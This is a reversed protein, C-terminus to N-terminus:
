TGFRYKLTVGYTPEFGGTLRFGEFPIAGTFAALSPQTADRNRSASTLYDEDFINKGWLVVDWNGSVASLGISANFVTYEDGVVEPDLDPFFFVDDRYSVEGRAYWNMGNGLQDSWTANVNASWPSTYNLRDGSLDQVLNGTVPDATCAVREFQPRLCGANEYEDWRADVYALNGDFLLKDTALWQFDTEFGEIKVKAANQVSNGIGENDQIEVQYDDYTQYFAAINWVLTNDFLRGKLGIEFNDAVESDFPPPCDPVGPDDAGKCVNHGGAKFGRDWGGYISVDDNLWWTLKVTGTLEDWSDEQIPIDDAWTNTPVLPHIFDKFLGAGTPQGKEGVKEVESYRIGFTLDLGERISWINHNFVAWEETDDGINSFGPAQIALGFEFLGLVQNFDVRSLVDTDAYFAGIISSWNDSDYTFRLEQTFSETDALQVFSTFKYPGVATAASDPVVVGDSNVFSSGDKGITNLVYSQDSTVSTMQWHESIDWQLHLSLIETNTNRNTPAAAWQERDSIEPIILQSDAPDTVGVIVREWAPYLDGYQGVFSGSGEYDVEHDEYGLTAEFSDTPQWLLRIRYGTSETEGPDDQPVGDANSANNTMFTDRQNNYVSARVAFQEGLPLNGGLRYEQLGFNGFNGEVYGDMVETDPQKTYLSIAGASVEKGFLTAQPGKLVEVRQIDAMNNFAAETAGLPIDDLFIGVSPRISPAFANNGVGRIKIIAGFGDSSPTMTMGSALKGLDGFERTISKELMEESFAAVSSPVNQVSQTRKQATVLVEELQMQAYSPVTAVTLALALATQTPLPRTTALKMRFVEYSMTHDQDADRPYLALVIKNDHDGDV